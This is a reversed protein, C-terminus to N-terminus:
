LLQELLESIAKANPEGGGIGGGVKILQVKGAQDIVVVHPLGSVGYYESMARNAELVFRLKLQHRAAFKKLVEREAEHAVQRKSRTALKAADDWEFNYYNTVGIIVLGKEGYKDQWQRLYPFKAICPGCWVAWFDLLVVKGKLDADTLPDGNVWADASLSAADKGVLALLKQESAIAQEIRDLTSSSSQYLKKAASSTAADRATTFASKAEALLKGAQEPDTQVMWGIQQNVKLMFRSFKQADDPAAKLQTGLAELSIRGIAIYEDHHDLLTAISTAQRKADPADPNLSAIFRKIEALKKEAADPDIQTLRTLPFLIETEYTRWSTLDNPNAQLKEAATGVAPKHTDDAIAVPVTLAFSLLGTLLVFRTM